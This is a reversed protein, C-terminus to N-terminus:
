LDAERASRIAFDRTSIAHPFRESFARTLGWRSHLADWGVRLALEHARLKRAHYIGYMEVRQFSARCLQEFEGARYERVHWPNDSREAGRPALTLVNPTSVYFAGGADLLSR